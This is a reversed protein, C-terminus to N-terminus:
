DEFNVEVEYSEGLSSFWYSPEDWNKPTASVVQYDPAATGNAVWRYQYNSL